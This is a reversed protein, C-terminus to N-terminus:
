AAICATPANSSFTAPISRSPTRTSASSPNRASAAPSCALQLESNAAESVTILGLKLQVGAYSHDSTVRTIQNSHIHYLRCDGVHGVHVQNHRLVSITLTTAMRRAANNQAVLEVGADYVALNAADFMKRLLAGPSTDPAADKFTQLATNIAIRSAIDGDGQGGVGDAIALVAGRSRWEAESEPQWFGIFDENRERVGAASLHYYKLEM